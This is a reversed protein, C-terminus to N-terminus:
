VFIYNMQLGRDRSHQLTHFSTAAHQLTIERIKMMIQLDKGNSHQLTHCHTAAQQLTIQRIQIM